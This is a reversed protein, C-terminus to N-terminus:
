VPYGRENQDIAADWVDDLTTVDGSDSDILYYLNANCHECYCHSGQNYYTWKLCHDCFVVMVDSPPRGAKLAMKIMPSTPLESM